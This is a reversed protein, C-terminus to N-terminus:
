CQGRHQLCLAAAILALAAGLWLAASVPHVRGHEGAFGVGAGPLLLEEAAMAQAEDLPLDACVVLSGGSFAPLSVSRTAVEQPIVLSFSQRGPSSVAPMWRHLVEITAPIAQLASAEVWEGCGDSGGALHWSLNTSGLLGGPPGIVDARLLFDGSPTRWVRVQGGVNWGTSPRIAAVAAPVGAAPERARAAAIPLDACGRLAGTGRQEAVLYAAPGDSLMSVALPLEQFWLHREDWPLLQADQAMPGGVAYVAIWEACTGRALSAALPLLNPDWRLARYHQDLDDKPRIDAVLIFNGTGDPRLFVGGRLPSGGIQQIPAKPGLWDEQAALPAPCRLGVTLLV